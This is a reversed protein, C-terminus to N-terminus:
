DFLDTRTYTKTKIKIKKLFFNGEMKVIEDKAREKGGQKRRIYSIWGKLSVMESINAQGVCAEKEKGVMAM